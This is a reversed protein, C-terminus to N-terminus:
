NGRVNWMERRVYLTECKVDWTYRKVNWTERILKQNEVAIIVEQNELDLL